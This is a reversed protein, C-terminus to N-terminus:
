KESVGEEAVPRDSGPGNEVPWNGDHDDSPLRVGDGGAGQGVPWDPPAPCYFFGDSGGGDPDVSRRVM